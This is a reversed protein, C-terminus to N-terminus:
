APIAPHIPLNQPLGAPEGGERGWGRSVAGRWVRRHLEAKQGLCKAKRPTERTRNKAHMRGGRAGLMEGASNASSGARRPREDPPYRTAHAGRAGHAGYREEPPGRRWSAGPTTSPSSAPPGPEDRRGAARGGTPSCGPPPPGRGRGGRRRGPAWRRMRATRRPRTARSGSAARRRWCRPCRRRPPLATCSTRRRGRRPCRGRCPASWWTGRPAAACCRRCCGGRGRGGRRCRGRCRGRRERRARGRGGGAGCRGEGGGRAAERRATRGWGPGHPLRRGCRGPVGRCLRGRRPSAPLAARPGSATGLGRPACQPTVRGEVTAQSPDPSQQLGRSLHATWCTDWPNLERCACLVLLSPATRASAIRGRRKNFFGCDVLSLTRTFAGM